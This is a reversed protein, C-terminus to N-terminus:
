KNATDYKSGPVPPSGFLEREHSQLSQEHLAPSSGYNVNRFEDSQSHYHRPKHEPQYNDSASMQSYPKHHHQPHFAFSHHKSRHGRAGPRGRHYAPAAASSEDNSVSGMSFHMNHHAAVQESPPNYPRSHSE